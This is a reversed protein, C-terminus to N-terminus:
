GAVDRHILDMIAVAFWPLDEAGRSTVITGDTVAPQDVCRAGVLKLEDRVGEACTARRGRIVDTTVLTEVGHGIAGLLEEAEVLARVLEQVRGSHRVTESARSGGPIIALEYYDAGWMDFFSLNAEMPCGYVGDLPGTEPAAVDVTIDEERLRYYMYLLERDDVGDATLIIGHMQTRRIQILATQDVTDVHVPVASLADLWPALWL